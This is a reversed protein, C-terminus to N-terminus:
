RPWCGRPDKAGISKATDVIEPLEDIPRGDNSIVTFRRALTDPVERSPWDVLLITKTERLLRAVDTM